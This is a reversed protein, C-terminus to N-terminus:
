ERVTRMTGCNTCTLVSTSSEDYRRIQIEKKDCAHGCKKCKYKSSYKFEYKYVERERVYFRKVLDLWDLPDFDIEGNHKDYYNFFEKRLQYIDYVVSELSPINVIRASSQESYGMQTDVSKRDELSRSIRTLINDVIQQYSDKGYREYCYSRFLIM